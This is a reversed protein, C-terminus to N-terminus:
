EHNGGLEQFSQDLLRLAEERTFRLQSAEVALQTALPKLRRIKESRLLGPSQQNVYCGGGPVTRLVGERELNQFARAVTNPNVRLEAALKRVSPLADDRRLVGAAVAHRVQNEIQLYIPVGSAPHVRFLM